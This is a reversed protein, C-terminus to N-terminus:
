EIAALCTFKDLEREVKKHFRSIEFLRHFREFGLNKFFFPFFIEM